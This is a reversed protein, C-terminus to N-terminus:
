KKRRTIDGCLELLQKRLESQGLTFTTTPRAQYRRYLFLLGVIVIVAILIWAWKPVPHKKKEQDTEM